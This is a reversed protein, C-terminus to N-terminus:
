PYNDGASMDEDDDEEMAQKM